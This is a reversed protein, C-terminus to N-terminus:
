ANEGRRLRAFLQRYGQRPSVAAVPTESSMAITLMQRPPDDEVVILDTSSDAFGARGEAAPVLNVDAGVTALKLAPEAPVVNELAVDNDYQSTSGQLEAAGDPPEVLHTARPADLGAMERFLLAEALTLMEEAAPPRIDPYQSSEPQPPISAQPEAEEAPAPGPLARERRADLAAYRDFVVEDHTEPRNFEWSDIADNSTPESAAPTADASTTEAPWVQIASEAISADVAVAAPADMTSESFVDLGAGPGSDPHPLRENMSAIPDTPEETSDDDLQGFEIVTAETNPASAPPNSEGGVWPAPLQQLDSWAQEVVDGTVQRRGDAYALMLSQDCVQNILRPVGDTARYVSELAEPTLIEDPRGGAAALQHRAYERTEVRDLPQLYCRCALRQNLSDLKPSTLRDELAASGALVLHVCTQGHRVLNTIMRVEELLRIPLAHAEDVLLLMGAPGHESRTLHEILALRLEGEELKRYPLGLEFLIVQLLARRTTLHGGTLLAPQFREKFQEALVHLLLTKGTGAPGVIMGGGAAREICRTLTLRANEISAAAFYRGPSPAALFPRRHMGYLSEYM